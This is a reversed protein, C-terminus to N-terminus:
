NSVVADLNKQQASVMAEPTPFRYYIREYNRTRRAFRCVLALTMPPDMVKGDRDKLQGTDCLPNACVNFEPTTMSKRVNAELKKGSEDNYRNRFLRKSHGWLYEVGLGAIEPHCKVGFLVLHGRRSFTRRSKVKTIRFGGTAVAPLCTGQDADTPDIKFYAHKYSLVM